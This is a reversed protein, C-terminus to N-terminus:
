LFTDAEGSDYVPLIKPHRARSLTMILEKPHPGIFQCLPAHDGLRERPTGFSSPM